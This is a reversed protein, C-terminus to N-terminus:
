HIVFDNVSVVKLQYNGEYKEIVGVVDITKGEFNSAVVKFTKDVEYKGTRDFLVDTRITVTDGNSDQCTLTMAGQSDGKSTTYVSTVTLGKFSVFNFQLNKDAVNVDAGTIETPVPTKPEEIVRINDIDDTDFYDKPSTLQFVGGAEYYMITGSIRITIGIKNMHGSQGNPNYCQIGYIEGTEPDTYNLYFTSKQSIRVV